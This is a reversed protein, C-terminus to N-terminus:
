SSKAKTYETCWHDPEIRGLVKKCTGTIWGGGTGEIFSKCFYKDDRILSGCHRHLHGLSYNVESKQKKDM